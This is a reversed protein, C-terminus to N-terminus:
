NAPQKVDVLRVDTILQANAPISAYGRCGYALSSPIIIRYLGGERLQLLIDYVSKDRDNNLDKLPLGMPQNATPYRASDINTIASGSIYRRVIDLTVLSDDKAMNGTGYSLIGAYTKKTADWSLVNWNNKDITSDIIQRDRELTYGNCPPDSKICAAFFVTVLLIALPFLIIKKM